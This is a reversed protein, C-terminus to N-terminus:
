ERDQETSLRQRQKKYFLLTKSRIFYCAVGPLPIFFLFWGFEHKELRLSRRSRAYYSFSKKHYLVIHYVFIAPSNQAIIRNNKQRFRKRKTIIKLINFIIIWLLLAVLSQSILNLSKSRQELRCCRLINKIKFKFNTLLLLLIFFFSQLM